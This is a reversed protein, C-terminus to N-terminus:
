ECSGPQERVNLRSATLVYHSCAAESNKETETEAVTQTMGMAALPVIMAINKFYKM